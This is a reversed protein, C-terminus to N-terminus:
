NRALDARVTEVAINAPCDVDPRPAVLARTLAEASRKAVDVAGAVERRAQTARAAAATAAREMDKVADNQRRLSQELLLYASEAKALDRRALAADARFWLVTGALVVIVAVLVLEKWYYRVFSTIVAGRM